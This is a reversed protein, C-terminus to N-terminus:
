GFQFLVVGYSIMVGVTTLVFGRTITFMGWGTMGANASKINDILIMFSLLTDQSLDKKLVIESMCNIQNKLEEAATSVKSASCTITVFIIVSFLFVSFIDIALFPHDILKEVVLFSSLTNFFCSICAVYAFFTCFSLVDDAQNIGYIIRRFTVFDNALSEKTPNNKLNEILSNGFSKIIRKLIVHVNCCAMICIAITFSSLLQNISYSALVVHLTTFSGNTTMNYGMFTLHSRNQIQAEYFMDLHSIMFFVSNLILIGVCQLFINVKLSKYVSSSVDTYLHSLSEIVGPLKIHQMSINFRILLTAAFKITYTIRMANSSAFNHAFSVTIAFTTLALLNMIIGYLRKFTFSKWRGENAVSQCKDLQGSESQCCNSQCRNKADSENDLAIGFISALKFVPEFDNSMKRPFVKCSDKCASLTYLYNRREPMEVSLTLPKKNEYSNSRGNKLLNNEEM